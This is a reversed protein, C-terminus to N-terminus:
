SAAVSPSSLPDGPKTTTALGGGVGGVSTGASVGGPIIARIPKNHTIPIILILLLNLQVEERKKGFGNLLGKVKIGANKAAQRRDRENM